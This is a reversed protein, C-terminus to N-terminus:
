SPATRTLMTPLWRLRGSRSPLNPTSAIRGSSTSTGSMSISTSGSQLSPSLRPVRSFTTAGPFSCARACPVPWTLAFAAAPGSATVPPVARHIRSALKGTRAGTCSPVGPSPLLPAPHRAVASVLLADLLVESGKAFAGLKGDTIVNQTVYGSGVSVVLGRQPPRRPQEVRDALGRESARGFGRGAARAGGRARGRAGRAAAREGRRASSHMRAPM